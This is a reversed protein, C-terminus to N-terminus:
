HPYAEKLLNQKPLDTLGKILMTIGSVIIGWFILSTTGFPHNWSYITIWSGGILGVIGTIIYIISQKKRHCYNEYDNITIATMQEAQENTCQNAKFFLLLKEEDQHHHYRVIAKRILENFKEESIPFSM